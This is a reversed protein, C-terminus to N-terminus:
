GRGTWAPQPQPSARGRAADDRRHAARAQRRGAPVARALALALAQEPQLQVRQGRQGAPLGQLALARLALEQQRLVRLAPPVAAAADAFAAAPSTGDPPAGAAAAWARLWVALVPRRPGQAWPQPVQRASQAQQVQQVQQARQAWPESARAQRDDPVQQGANPQPWAAGPV